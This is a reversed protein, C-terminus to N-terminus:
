ALTAAANDVGSLVHVDKRWAALILAPATTFRLRLHRTLGGFFARLLSRALVQRVGARQYIRAVAGAFAVADANSLADPFRPNVLILEAFGMTKMARAVAGINGPHSTEVLVFRLRKFLSTDTQPLNM